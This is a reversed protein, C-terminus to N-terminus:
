CKEKAPFVCLITSKPIPTLNWVYWVWRQWAEWYFKAPVVRMAEWPEGLCDIKISSSKMPDAQQTLM